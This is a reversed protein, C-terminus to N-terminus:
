LPPAAKKKKGPKKPKRPQELLEVDDATPEQQQLRSLLEEISARLSAQTSPFPLPSLPPTPSRHTLPVGRTLDHYYSAQKKSVKAVAAAHAAHGADARM